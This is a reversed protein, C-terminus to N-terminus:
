MGKVVVFGLSLKAASANLAAVDRDVLAKVDAALADLEARQSAYVERMGQTPAGDGDSAWDLLPSM